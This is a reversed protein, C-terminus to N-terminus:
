SSGLVDVVGNDDDGADTVDSEVVLVAWDCHEEREDRKDRDAM